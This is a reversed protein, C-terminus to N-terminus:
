KIIFKRGNQIYIGRMPKEIRRGSLDYVPGQSLREDLEARQIGDVIDNFSFSFSKVPSGADELYYAKYLPLGTGSLPYFGVGSAGGYLVYANKGSPVSADEYTGSLLNDNPAAKSSSVVDFSLTASATAGEKWLIAATGAALIDGDDATNAADAVKSLFLTNTGTSVAKYAKVGTQMRIPFPLYATAYAHTNNSNLIISYVSLDEVMLDTTRWNNIQLSSNVTIAGHYIIRNTTAGDVWTKLNSGILTLAFPNTTRVTNNGQNYGYLRYTQYPYEADDATTIKSAVATGNSAATQTKAALYGGAKNKLKLVYPNGIFAWQYKANDVSYIDALNTFSSNYVGNNNYLFYDLTSTSTQEHSYIYYYKPSGETSFDFPATSSASVYLDTGTTIESVESSLGVNSYYKNGFSVFPNHLLSSYPLYPTEGKVVYSESSFVDTGGMVAHYDIEECPMIAWNAGHYTTTGYLGCYDTTYSGWQILVRSDEYGKPWFKITTSGDTGTIKWKCQNSTADTGDIVVTTSTTNATMVPASSAWKLYKGTAALQLTYYGDEGAVPAIYFIGANYAGGAGKMDYGLYRQTLTGSQNFLAYYGAKINEYKVATPKGWAGSIGTLLAVFLLLLKKM